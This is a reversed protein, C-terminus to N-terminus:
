EGEVKEDSSESAQATRHRGRRIGQQFSSLRGRVDAPDREPRPRNETSGASTASGPLLQEGRRRRPLGAPTYSTPTSESVSQATRWGDDSAFAWESVRASGNAEGPRDQPSPATQDPRTRPRRQPLGSGHTHNPTGPQEEARHRRGRSVGQQFSSLRSRVEVADRAPPTPPSQQERPVGNPAAPPTGGAPAASGPLLQEGRKRRPLGARTYDEPASKSVAQVTRFREDAAFDWGSTTSGGQDNAPDTVSRFWASLMEDFIPTTESMDAQRRARQEADRATTAASWWDSVVTSSAEFLAKGSLDARAQQDPEPAEALAPRDTAPEQGSDTVAGTDEAPQPAQPADAGPRSRERAQRTAGPRRRPLEAAGPRDAEQGTEEGAEPASDQPAEQPAERPWAPEPPGPRRAQDAGDEDRGIPTFLATGSVESDSPPPAQTAAGKGLQAFAGPRATGNTQRRPLAAAASTGPAPQQAQPEPRGPPGQGPGGMVLEAPVTVTARVGVIDKGGHLVVGFGHRSALRGVVFLGMRRSTAIDVSGAETLRANAEAVEADNMGIGRDVIDITLSGDDAPRTGVHVQTEPASFATANDLLEAVLRVLDGAAYGVIRLQPPTGVVVRQYQEIESVAARLVDTVTVPQGSRRGPEAGSLVMLNENNRRMRTALHDLQFLTALQDADEEDRELREILQLQRQVLSQSRRSLNVFVSAFGTRMGAQEVALRLAQSHVADFARAVQGIEDNTRVPVPEIDTSQSRGDQISRVAEPLARDAVDLAATRLVKLSRLLQRSILFVVLAGLVLAAVLLAALVVVGTQAGDALDRATTTLEDGLRGTVQGTSAFVEGSVRAWEQPAVTAFAARNSDQGSLVNRVIRDRDDFAPGRVTSDFQARQADTAASTFETLRDALRVTSTRLQDFESPALGGRDLGYGVLAQQVSVEERAVLLDHLATPAGGIQDSGMGAVVAVDLNLVATTVATYESVAQIPGLQGSRVRDRLGALRDLQETLRQRPGALAEGEGAAGDLTARVPGAARDVEGRVNQLEPSNAGSGRTLAAVTQTRERQLGDLLTRSSANLEALRAIGDYRDASDIRGALTIGGLVLALVIPVLTVAGLKAPLSWDRWRALARWKSPKPPPTGLLQGVPM